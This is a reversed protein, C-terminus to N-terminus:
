KATNKFPKIILVAIGVAMVALPLITKIPPAVRRAAAGDESGGMAGGGIGGGGFGGGGGSSIEEDIPYPQITDTGEEVDLNPMDITVNENLYTGSTGGLGGTYINVTTGNSGGSSDGVQSVPQEPADDPMAEEMLPPKPPAPDQPKEDPFREEMPPPPPPPPSIDEGSGTEPRMNQGAQAQGVTSVSKGAGQPATTKLGADANLYDELIAFQYYINM